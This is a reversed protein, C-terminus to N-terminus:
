NLDKTKSKRAKKVKGIVRSKHKPYAEFAKSLMFSFVDEETYSGDGGTESNLAEIFKKFNKKTTERILLFKLEIQM